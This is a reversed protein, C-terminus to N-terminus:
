RADPLRCRERANQALRHLLDARLVLLDRRKGLNQDRRGCRDTPFQGASGWRAGGGCGDVGDQLVHAAAKCCSRLEKAVDRFVSELFAHECPAPVCPWPTWVSVRLVM